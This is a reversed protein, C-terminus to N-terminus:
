RHCILVRLYILISYEVLLASLNLFVIPAIYLVTNIIENYTAQAAHLRRTYLLIDGGIDLITLRSSQKIKM